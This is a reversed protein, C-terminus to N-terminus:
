SHRSVIAGTSGTLQFSHRGITRGQTARKAVPTVSGGSVLGRVHSASLLVTVKSGAFAGRLQTKSANPWRAPLPGTQEGM